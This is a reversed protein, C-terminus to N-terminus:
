EKEDFDLFREKFESKPLYCSDTKGFWLYRKRAIWDYIYNRVFNPFIFLVLFLQWIGGLHSLIRLVATSKAYIKGSHLYFIADIEAQKDILFRKAYESQQAAFYLNNRKDKKLLFNV